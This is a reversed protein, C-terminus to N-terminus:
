EMLKVCINAMAIKRDQIFKPIAIAVVLYIIAAITILWGATLLKRTSENM